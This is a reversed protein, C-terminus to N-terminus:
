EDSSDGKDRKGLVRNWVSSVFDPALWHFGVGMVVFGEPVHGTFILGLGALVGGASFAMKGYFQRIESRRVHHQDLQFEDQEIIERRIRTLVLADPIPTAEDSIRQSLANLHNPVSPRALSLQGPDAAQAALSKSPPGPIAGSTDGSRILRQERSEKEDEPRM